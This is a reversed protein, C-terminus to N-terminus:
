MRRWATVTVDHDRDLVRVESAVLGHSGLIQQPTREPVSTFVPQGGPLRVRPAQSLHFIDYCDLFLAYVSPGGIVAAMGESVGAAAAAAKFDMGSPNWFFSQPIDAAAEFATVSRSVILRRRVQTRPDGDGSNRGHVVLAARKLGDVFFRHDAKFRLADPQQHTADTLHGEASVIVFGEVSIAM